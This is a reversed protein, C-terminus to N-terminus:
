RFLSSCPSLLARVAPFVKCGAFGLGPCRHGAPTRAPHPTASTNKASLELAQSNHGKCLAPGPPYLNETLSLNPPKLIQRLCSQLLRRHTGCSRNWRAPKSKWSQSKCHQLCHLTVCPSPAQVVALTKEHLLGMAWISRWGMEFAEGRGSSLGSGTSPSCLWVQPRGRGEGTAVFLIPHLHGVQHWFNNNAAVQCAPKWGPSFAEM